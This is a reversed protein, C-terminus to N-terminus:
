GSPQQPWHCDTSDCPEVGHNVPRNRHHRAFAQGLGAQGFHVVPWRFGADAGHLDGCVGLGDRAATGVALYFARSTCYTSISLTYVTPSRLFGAQVCGARADAVHALVFLLCAYAVETLIVFDPSLM